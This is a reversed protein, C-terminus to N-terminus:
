YMGHVPIYWYMTHVPVYLYTVTHVHIGTPELWSLAEKSPQLPLIQCAKCGQVAATWQCESGPSAKAEGKGPFGFEEQLNQDVQIWEALKNPLWRLVPHSSRYVYELWAPSLCLSDGVQLAVNPSLDQIQFELRSPKLLNIDLHVCGSDLGDVSTLRNMLCYTLYLISHVQVYWYM